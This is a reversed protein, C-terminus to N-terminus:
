WVKIFTDMSLAPVHCDTNETIAPECTKDDNNWALGCPCCMKYAIYGLVLAQQYMSKNTLKDFM